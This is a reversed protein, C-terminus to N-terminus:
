HRKEKKCKGGVKGGELNGRKKNIDGWRNSKGKFATGGIWERQLVSTHLSM